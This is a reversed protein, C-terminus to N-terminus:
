TIDLDDFRSESPEKTDRNFGLADRIEELTKGQAHLLRQINALLILHMTYYESVDEINEIAKDIDDLTNIAEDARSLKSM